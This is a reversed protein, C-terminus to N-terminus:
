GVRARSERSREYTALDEMMQSNINRTAWKPASNIDIEVGEIRLDALGALAKRVGNAEIDAGFSLRFSKIKAAGEVDRSRTSLMKVLDGVDVGHPCRDINLTQLGPLIPRSWGFWDFFQSFDDTFWSPSRLSVETLSALSWFCHYAETFPTQNLVLSRISCHSRAILSRVAAAGHTSIEYLELRELAPLTFLDFLELDPNHMLSLSRLLPLTLPILEPEESWTSALTLNELNPTQALIDFCEELSQGWLDLSTLQSWPLSIQAITLNPLRVKRLRSANLFATICTPDDDAWRHVDLKLIELSSYPTGTNASPFPIPVHSKIDLATWQSSYQALISLLVDQSGSRRLRLRLTLPLSGARSYWCQLLQYLPEPPWGDPRHPGLCFGTWLRPTSLAIARWARCVGALPLPSNFTTVYQLFIESTIEPPLTLVPYIISDLSALVGEKEVRLRALQLELDAVQREIDVVLSRLQSATPLSPARGHNFGSFVIASQAPM